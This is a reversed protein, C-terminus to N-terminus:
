KYKSVERSVNLTDKRAHDNVKKSAPKAKLHPKSKKSDISAVSRSNNQTSSTKETTRLSKKILRNYRGLKLCRKTRYHMDKCVQGWGALNDIELNYAPTAASDQNNLLDFRDSLAYTHTSRSYRANPPLPTM